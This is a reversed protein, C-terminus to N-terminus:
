FVHKRCTNFLWLLMQFHRQNTWTTDTGTESQNVSLQTLHTIVGLWDQSRWLCDGSREMLSCRSLRSMVALTPDADFHQFSVHYLTYHDARRILGCCCISQSWFRKLNKKWMEQSNRVNEGKKNRLIIRLIPRLSYLFIAYFCQNKLHLFINYIVPNLSSQGEERLSAETSYVSMLDNTSQRYVSM